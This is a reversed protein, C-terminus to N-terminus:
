NPRYEIKMIANQLQHEKLIKNAERISETYRVIYEYSKSSPIYEQWSIKYWPKTVYKM